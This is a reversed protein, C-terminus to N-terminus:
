SHLNSPRYLALIKAKLLRTEVTKPLIHPDFVCNRMRSLPLEKDMEVIARTSLCCAEFLVNTMPIIKMGHTDTYRFICLILLGSASHGGDM